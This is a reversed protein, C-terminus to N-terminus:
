CGDSLPLKAAPCFAAGIPAQEVRAGGSCGASSHIEKAGGCRM